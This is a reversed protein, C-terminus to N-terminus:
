LHRLRIEVDGHGERLVHPFFEETIFPQDEPFFYDQVKVRCAAKMDTLGVMRVGTPNVYLPKLDLECMGIFESSIDALM